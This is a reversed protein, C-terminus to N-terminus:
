FNYRYGMTANINVDKARLELSADWFITGASQSVPIYLGAGVELGIPGREASRVEANSLAGLQAFQVKSRSDRDGLYGKLLARGEFVSSRNYVDAGFATQVRAGAAITVANSDIDEVKLAADSGSESFGDMSTHIYTVNFVPQICASSDETLAFTRAVEYMLGFSSGSTSGTATYAGAPTNVTRDMDADARGLTAIFTHVWSRNSHRVFATLYYNDLDGDLHDAADSKFNGFMATVALGATTNSTVDVDMGVTGGWTSYKYGSLTKDHEMRRYDGEANIWANVYPLDKPNTCCSNIGMTTTRNRIARLQRDVDSRIAEHLAPISAGAVASALKDADARRGHALHNDLGDLAKALDPYRDRNLQPSLEFYAESAMRAGQGANGGSIEPYHNDGLYDVDIWLNGDREMLTGDLHERRLNTLADSSLTCSEAATTGCGSVLEYAGAIEPVEELGVLINYTDESYNALRNVYVMPGSATPASTFIISDTILDGFVNGSSSLAVAPATLNGGNSVKKDFILSRNSVLTGYNTFTGHIETWLYNQPLVDAIGKFHGTPVLPSETAGFRLFADKAITLNQLHYGPNDVEAYGDTLILSGEGHLNQINSDDGMRLTGTNGNVTYAVLRKFANTGDTLNLTGATVNGGKSTEQLLALSAAVINVDGGNNLYGIRSDKALNLQGGETITIDGAQAQSGVNGVIASVSATDLTISGSNRIIAGSASINHVSIQGDNFLSVNSGSITIENATLKTNDTVTVSGRTGIAVTDEVKVQLKHVGDGFTHNGGRVDIKQAALTGEGVFTYDKNVSELLISKVTRDGNIDVQATGEGLFGVPTTATPETFESGNSDWDRFSSWVGDESVWQLTDIVSITLVVDGNENQGIRAVHDLGDELALYAAGDNLTLTSVWSPTGGINRLLSVTDGSLFGFAKVSELAGDTLSFEMAGSTLSGAFYQPADFTTISSVALHSADLAGTVTLIAGEEPQIYGASLNTITTVSDLHLTNRVTLTSDYTTNGTLHLSGAVDLAGPGVIGALTSTGETTLEVTGEADRMMLIGGNVTNITSGAGVRLVGADGSYTVAGGVHLEDFINDSAAALTLDKAVNVDGGQTTASRLALSGQAIDVTGTNELTWVTFTDDDTMAFSSGEGVILPASSLQPAKDVVMTGGNEVVIRKSPSVQDAGTFHYEGGSVNWETLHIDEGVTITTVSASGEFHAAYYNSDYYTSPAGGREEAWVVNDEAMDWTGSTGGAWYVANGRTFILNLANGEVALVADYGDIDPISSSSVLLSEPNTVSLTGASVLHYAQGVVISKSAWDEFNVKVLGDITVSGSANVLTSSLQTPTVNFTIAANEGITLASARVTAPQRVAVEGATATISGSIEAYGGDFAFTGGEVAVSSDGGLMADAGLILEGAKVKLQPSFLSINTFVASGTGEKVLEEARLSHDNGGDFVYNQVTNAITMTPVNINEALNVSGGFASGAALDNFLVSRDQTFSAAYTTTGVPIVWGGGVTPLAVDPDKAAGSKWSDATGSWTLQGHNYQEAVKKLAEPTPIFEVEDVAWTLDVGREDQGYTWLTTLGEDKYLYVMGDLMKTYLTFTRYEMDDSNTFLISKLTGDPNTEFGYATMAHGAGGPAVIGIFAIQGEATHSYTGDGNDVAGFATILADAVSKLSPIITEAEGNLSFRFQTYTSEFTPFWQQFYGGKTSQNKLVSYPGGINTFDHFDGLYWPAMMPFDGGAAENGNYNTWTDYFLMDMRLSQTGGLDDMYQKDYTYGYPLTRTPDAFVGYYSEWYTLVNASVNYWCTNEDDLLPAFTELSMTNGRLRPQLEGMFSFNGFQNFLQGAGRWPQLGMAQWYYGKGNDFFRTSSTINNPNVGNAVLTTANAMPFAALCALVAARLLNPLHLKM